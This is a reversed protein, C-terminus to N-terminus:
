ALAVCAGALATLWARFFVRRPKPKWAPAPLGTARYAAEAEAALALAAEQSAEVQEELLAMEADSLDRRFLEKGLESMATTSCSPPGSTPISPRKAPD